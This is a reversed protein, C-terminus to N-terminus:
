PTPTTPPTTQQPQNPQQNPTPTASGRRKRVKPQYSSSNTDTIIMGKGTSLSWCDVGRDKITCAFDGSAVAAGATLMPYTTNPQLMGADVPTAAGNTELVFKVGNGMMQGVHGAYNAVYCEVTAGLTCYIQGNLTAFTTSAVAGAPLPKAGSGVSDPAYRQEEQYKLLEGSSATTPLTSDQSNPKASETAANNNQNQPISDAYFLRNIVGRKGYWSHTGNGGSLLDVLNGGLTATFTAFVLFIAVLLFNRRRNSAM